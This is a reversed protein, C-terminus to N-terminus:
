ELGGAALAEAHDLFAEFRFMKGDRFEVMWGAEQDLEVGSARGRLHMRGLVVVTDDTEHFVEPQVQWVEFSDEMAAQWERYGDHGRYPKGGSLQSSAVRIEVEPHIEDLLSEHEGTNWRAFADRVREANPGLENV